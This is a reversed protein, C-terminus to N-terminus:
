SLLKTEIDRIYIFCSDVDVIRTLLKILRKLFQNFDYLDFVILRSLLTIIDILNQEANMDGM